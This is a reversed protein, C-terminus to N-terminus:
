RPCMKCNGFHYGLFRGLLKGIKNCYPCVGIPKSLLTKSIVDKRKIPDSWDPHKGAMARRQTDYWMKPKPMKNLTKFHNNIVVGGTKANEDMLNAWDKSEVINHQKSFNLAFAICDDENLFLCYWLNIVHEVGHKKIHPYWYKGSGPYTEPDKITKGFYLLGTVSHQKIYLFTPIFISM